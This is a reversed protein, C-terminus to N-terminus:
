LEFFKFTIQQACVKLVLYLNFDNKLVSQIEFPTKKKKMTPCFDSSEIASSRVATFTCSTIAIATHPPCQALPKGLTQENATTLLEGLSMAIVEMECVAIQSKWLM